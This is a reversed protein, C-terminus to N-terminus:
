IVKKFMKKGRCGNETKKENGGVRGRDNKSWERTRGVPGIVVVHAVDFDNQEKIVDTDDKPQQIEETSYGFISMPRYGIDACM